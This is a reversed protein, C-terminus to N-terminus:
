READVQFFFAGGIVVAAIANARVDPGNPARCVHARVSTLGAMGACVGSIIYVRMKVSAVPVGSLGAARENGGTAYLWRGFRTRTVLLAILMAFIVM